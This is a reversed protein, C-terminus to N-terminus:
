DKCLKTELINSVDNVLSETQDSEDYKWITCPRTQNKNEIVYLGNEKWFIPDIFVNCKDPFGNQLLLM